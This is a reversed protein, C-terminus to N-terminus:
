RYVVEVRELYTVLEGVLARIRESQRAQAARELSRGIGTIADFGYGEGSGKM